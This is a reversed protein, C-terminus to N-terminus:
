KQDSEAVFLQTWNTSNVNFYLRKGDPSWAPHPHSVRWSKAGHSNDARHIIIFKGDSVRGVIIGWDSGKGGVVDLTTDTAFLKGDPSFSPHDGRFAPFKGMRHSEGTNSDIIVGGPEIMQRSDANWAPHGWNERLFLFKSGELDYTVLGLRLSAKASRFDGNGATAMKFFIRHHDPSLVPFFISVPKDAFAKAIWDAYQEQVASVKL